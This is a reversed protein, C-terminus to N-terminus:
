EYEDFNPKRLLHDSVWQAFVVVTCVLVIKLIAVKFSSGTFIDVVGAWFLSFIFTSLNMKM